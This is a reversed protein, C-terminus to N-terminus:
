AEKRGVFNPLVRLFMRAGRVITLVEVAHATLVHGQKIFM